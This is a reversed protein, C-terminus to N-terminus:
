RQLLHWIFRIAPKTERPESEANRDRNVDQVFCHVVKKGEIVGVRPCNARAEWEKRQRGEGKFAPKGTERYSNRDKEAQRRKREPSHLPRTIGRDCDGNQHTNEIGAAM